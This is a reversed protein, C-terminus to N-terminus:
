YKAYLIVMRPPRTRTVDICCIDITAPTLKCSYLANISSQELPENDALRYIEAVTCMCHAPEAPMRRNNLEEGNDHVVPLGIGTGLM